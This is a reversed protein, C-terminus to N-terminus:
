WHIHCTKNESRRPREPARVYENHVWLALRRTIVPIILIVDDHVAYAVDTGKKYQNIREGCGGRTGYIRAAHAEPDVM